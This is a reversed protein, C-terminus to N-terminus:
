SPKQISAELQQLHYEAWDMLELLQWVVKKALVKDQEVRLRKRHTQINELITLLTALQL